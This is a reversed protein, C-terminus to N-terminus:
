SNAHEKESPISTEGSGTYINKRLFPLLNFFRDKWQKPVSYRVNTTYGCSCGPCLKYFMAKHARQYKRSAIIEKLPTDRINGYTGMSWCGGYVEGTGNIMLRLQSVTCPIKRQLPDSFYSSMYDIDAYTNVTSYHDEEKMNVLLKQLATLRPREEQTIWNTDTAQRQNEDIKFFFPTSDVLSFMLPLGLEKCFEKIRPLHGLTNKMVVFGINADIRGEKYAKAVRHGAAEVKGWDRRRIKEYEDAVGDISVTIHKLGADILADLKEQDLLFGSTIIAPSMGLRSIESVIDIIEKRLLPEGGNLGVKTIGLDRLQRLLDKWEQLNLENTKTERWQNCMICRMNCNDTPNLWAAEPSLQLREFLSPFLRM